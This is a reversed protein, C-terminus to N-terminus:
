RVLSELGEIGATKELFAKSLVLSLRSSILQERAEALLSEAQVLSLIDSKGVKYEGFAQSYNHEAQRLQEESVRLKDYATVFDEYTKYLELLLQRKAEKLEENYRKMEFDAYNKKYFKKLSFLNWTAKIGITKSEGYSSSISSSYSSTYGSIDSNNYSAELSLTPYFSSIELRRNNEAISIAAESQKIEPKQLAREKLREIIEKDRQNSSVPGTSLTGTIRYEDELSIGILSSLDLLSKRLDREAEILNFKAKELRVSAQLVDSLKAVGFKHRGEAVEYDKKSDQLQIKRQSLIEKRAVATYYYTKVSYETDILAKKLDERSINLNLSAINRNARRTGGDFLVYSLALSYATTQYEDSSKLIKEKTASLDLSPLYSSLSADYLAETSRVKIEAARYSPLNQRALSLAEELTLSFAQGPMLAISFILLVLLAIHDLGRVLGSTLHYIRQRRTNKM